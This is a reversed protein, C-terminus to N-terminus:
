REQHLDVLQNVHPLGYPGFGVRHNLSAVTTGGDSATFKCDLSGSRGGILTRPVTLGHAYQGQEGVPSEVADITACKIMVTGSTAPVGSALFVTGSVDAVAISKNFRDASVPSRSCAAVALLTVCALSRV